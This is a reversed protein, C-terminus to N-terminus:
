AEDPSTAIRNECQETHPRLLRSSRCRSTVPHAPRWRGARPAIAVKSEVDAMGYGREFAIEGDRSVGVGCGASDPRNWEAFITDIRAAMDQQHRAEAAVAGAIAAALALVLRIM